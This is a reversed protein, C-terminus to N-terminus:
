LLNYLGIACLSEVAPSSLFSIFIDSAGVNSAQVKEFILYSFSYYKEGDKEVTINFEAGDLPAETYKDIKNLVLIKSIINKFALYLLM